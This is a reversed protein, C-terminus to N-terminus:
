EQIENEDVDIPEYEMGCKDLYEIHYPVIETVYISKSMIAGCDDCVAKVTVARTQIAGNILISSGKHLYEKYNSCEKGYCKVHIFDVKKDPNDELIHRIRNAAVLFEFKELRTDKDQYYADEGPEKCITGVLLINNSIEYAKEVVKLAEEPPLDSEIKKVFVPDIYIAVAGIEYQVHGCETCVFKRKVNNSCICGKVLVIDGRKIGAIGHEIVNRNRSYVCPVDYRQDGRLAFDSTAYTRRVTELLLMGTAPIGEETLSIRAQSVKGFLYVTNEKAM